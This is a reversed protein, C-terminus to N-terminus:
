MPRYPDRRESLNQLDQMTRKFKNYLDCFDEGFALSKILLQEIQRLLVLHQSRLSEQLQNDGHGHKDPHSDYKRGLCENNHLINVMIERFKMAMEKGHPLRDIEKIYENGMTLIM